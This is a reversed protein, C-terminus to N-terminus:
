LSAPQHSLPLSAVQQHLFAPSVPEIGPDPLDGPPPFPLGSWYDQRSFGVSLPAQHAVTWPTAFLQVRSLSQAHLICLLYCDLLELHIELQQKIALHHRVRKHGLPRYGVM